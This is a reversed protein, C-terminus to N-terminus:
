RYDATTHELHGTNKHPLTHGRRLLFEPKLLVKLDHPAVLGEAVLQNATHQARGNLNQQRNGHGQHRIVVAVVKAIIHQIHNDEAASNEATLKDGHRQHGLQRLLVIFRTHEDARGNHAGNGKCQDVRHVQQRGPIQILRQPHCDQKHDKGQCAAAYASQTHELRHHDGVRHVILLVM